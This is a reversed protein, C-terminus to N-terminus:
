WRLKDNKVQFSRKLRKFLSFFTYLNCEETHETSLFLTINKNQQVPKIEKKEQSSWSPFFYHNM